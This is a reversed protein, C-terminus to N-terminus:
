RALRRELFLYALVALPLLLLTLLLIPHGFSM